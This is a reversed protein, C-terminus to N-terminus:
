IVLCPGGTRNELIKKPIRKTNFKSLDSDTVLNVSVFRENSPIDIQILDQTPLNDTQTISINEDNLSEGLNFDM